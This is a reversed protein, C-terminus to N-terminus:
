AELAGCSSKVLQDNQFYCCYPHGGSGEVCCWGTAEHCAFAPSVGLGLAGASMLALLSLTRLARHSM